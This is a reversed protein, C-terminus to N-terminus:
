QKGLSSLHARGSLKRRGAGTGGEAVGRGHGQGHGQGRQFSNFKVYDDWHDQSGYALSEFRSQDTMDGAMSPRGGVMGGGGVSAGGEIVTEVPAPQSGGSSGSSNPREKLCDLKGVMIVTAMICALSYYGVCVYVFFTQWGANSERTDDTIDDLRCCNTPPPRPTLKTRTTGRTHAYPTVPPPSDRFSTSLMFNSKFKM